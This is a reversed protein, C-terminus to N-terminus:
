PDIDIADSAPRLLDDGPRIYSAITTPDKHGPMTQITKLVTGPGLPKLPLIVRVSGYRNRDALAAEFEVRSAGQSVTLDSVRSM